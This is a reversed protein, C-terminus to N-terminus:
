LWLFYSKGHNEINLIASSSIPIKVCNSGNSETTIRFLVMNPIIKDFNWGSIKKEQNHIQKELDWQFNTNDIDIQTLNQNVEFTIYLDVTESEQGDEDFKKFEVPFVTQYENKYQNLLGM